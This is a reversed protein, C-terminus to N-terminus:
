FMPPYRRQRERNLGLRPFVGLTLIARAQSVRELRTKSRRKRPRAGVEPDPPVRNQQERNGQTRYARRPGIAETSM